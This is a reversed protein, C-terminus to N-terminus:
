GRFMFNNKIKFKNITGTWSISNYGKSLVLAPFDGVTKLNGEENSCTLLLCDIIVNGKANNIQLINDNIVIQINAETDPLELEIYPRSEVSGNNFIVQGKNIEYTPECCYRLFPQCIFSVTFRSYFKKYDEFETIEVRKVLYCRETNDDFILRNDTVDFLWETIEQIKEKYDEDYTNINMLQLAVKITIDNYTGTRRTLAGIISGDVVEEEVEEIAVPFAIPSVIICDMDEFNHKNNFTFNAM